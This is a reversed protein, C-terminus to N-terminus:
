ELLYPLCMRFTTLNNDPDSIATFSGGHAEAVARIFPLSMGVSTRNGAQRKEWQPARHMMEREFGDLIPRGSDTFEMVAMAGDRYVSIRLLDDRVTFKITNELLASIVRVLLDRDAQILVPENPLSTELRLGKVTVVYSDVELRDRMLQALDVEELQLELSDLELRALDILETVMNMQRYSAHLAGKLLRLTSDPAGDDAYLNILVEISSIVLSIPSKLDHSLLAASGLVEEKTSGLLMGPSIPLGRATRPGGLWAKLDVWNVPYDIVMDVGAALAARRLTNQKDNLAILPVANGNMQTKIKQCIGIGDMEPLCIDVLIASPKANRMLALAQSSTTVVHLNYGLSQLKVGMPELTHASPKGVLIIHESM